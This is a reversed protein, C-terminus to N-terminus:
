DTEIKGWWLDSLFHQMPKAYLHVATPGGNLLFRLLREAPIGKIDAEGQETIIGHARLEDVFNGSAQRRARCPGPRISITCLVKRPPKSSASIVPKM